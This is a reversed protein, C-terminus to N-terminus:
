EGREVEPSRTEIIEAMVPHQQRCPGLRCPPEAQREMAPRMAGVVRHHDFPDSLDLSTPVCRSWRRRHRRTLFREEAKTEELSRQTAAQEIRRARREQEITM